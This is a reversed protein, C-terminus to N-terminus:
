RPSASAPPAPDDLRKRYGAVWAAAREGRGLACLAEAAMPGHNALGGAYEAGRDEMQALADDLPEWDAPAPRTPTPPAPPPLPLAMAGAALAAGETFARRTLRASTRSSSGHAM